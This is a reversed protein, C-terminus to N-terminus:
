LMNKSKTYPAGFTGFGSSDTPAGLRTEEFSGAINPSADEDSLLTLAINFLLLGIGVLGLGQSLIVETIVDDCMDDHIFEAYVPQITPCYSLILADCCDDLTAKANDYIDEILCCRDVVSSSATLNASSCNTWVDMATHEVIDGRLSLLMAMAAPIERALTGIVHMTTNQQSYHDKWDCDSYFDFLSRVLSSTRESEGMHKSFTYSFNITNADATDCYDSGTITAALLLGLVVWSFMCIGAKLIARTAPPLLLACRYMQWPAPVFRNSNGNRKAM